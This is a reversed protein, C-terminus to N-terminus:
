VARIKLTRSSPAHILHNLPWFPRRWSNGPRECRVIHSVLRDYASRHRLGHQFWQALVFCVTGAQAGGRLPSKAHEDLGGARAACTEGQKAPDGLGARGRPRNPFLDRQGALVEPNAPPIFLRHLYVLDQHILQPWHQPPILPAGSRQGACHVV